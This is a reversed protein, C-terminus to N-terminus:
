FEPLLEDVQRTSNENAHDSEILDKQTRDEPLLAAKMRGAAMVENLRHLFVPGDSSGKLPEPPDTAAMREIGAAEVRRSAKSSVM